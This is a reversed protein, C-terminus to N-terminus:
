SFIFFTLGSRLTASKKKGKEYEKLEGQEETSPEIHLSTVGEGNANAHHIPHRKM